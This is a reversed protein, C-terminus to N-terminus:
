IFKELLEFLYNLDIPKTIIDDCGSAICQDKEKKFANATMAIIPMKDRSENKEIARIQKTAEYGDMLPMRIDMLILSIAPEIIYTNIAESGNSALVVSYGNKELIRRTISQNTKNDDVLLIKYNTSKKTERKKRTIDDQKVEVPRYPITFSFLSGHGTESTVTIKGLMLEVLKKSISLGIGTGGYKNKIDADAQQFYEFIIDHKEPPIGIGNDKVSFKLMSHDTLSISLEIAGIKTFKIANSLLNNMVQLIRTQDGRIFSSINKEVSIILKLAKGCKQILTEGTMNVNQVLEHISLPTDEIEIQGSEIKSHELVNNILSILLNSSEKIGTIFENMSPSLNTDNMLEAYGVISYLPTRIEHSMNAIFESKHMNAIKLMSKQEILKKKTKLLNKKNTELRETMINFYIALNNFEDRSHRQYVKCKTCNEENTKFKSKESFIGYITWCPSLIKDRNGLHLPCTKVTCNKIKSCSTPSFPIKTSLDGDIVKKMSHRLKDIPKSIWHSAFFVMFVMIITLVFIGISIKIIIQNIPDQITKQKIGIRVTGIQSNAINIPYAVDYVLESGLQVLKTHYQEGPSTTNATILDKPIGNDFTHVYINNKNDTIFAYALDEDIKKEQELLNVLEYKRETLILNISQHSLSSTIKLLLQKKMYENSEFHVILIIVGALVFLILLNIALIKERLRLSRM